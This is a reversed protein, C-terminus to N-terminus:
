EESTCADDSSPTSAQTMRIRGYNDPWARACDLVRALSVSDIRYDGGERALPVSDIRYEGGSGVTLHYM